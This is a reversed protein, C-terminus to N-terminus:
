DLLLLQDGAIVVAHSGDPYFYLVDAGSPLPVSKVPGLELTSGELWAQNAGGRSGTWRGIMRTVRSSVQRFRGFRGAPPASSTSGFSRCDFPVQLQGYRNVSFARVNCGAQAPRLSWLENMALRQSTSGPQFPPMRTSRNGTLCDSSALATTSCCPSTLPPTDSPLV